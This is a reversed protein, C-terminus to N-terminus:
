SMSQVDRGLHSLGNGHSVAHGRVGFRARVVDVIRETGRPSSAQVSSTRIDTRPGLGDLLNTTHGWWTGTLEQWGPHSQDSQSNWYVPLAHPAGTCWTLIVCGYSRPATVMPLESVNPRPWSSPPFLFDVVITDSLGLSM